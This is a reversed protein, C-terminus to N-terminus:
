GPGGAGSTGTSGTSGTSGTAGTSGTSGSAGSAGSAGAAGGTSGAPGSATPDTNSFTMVQLTALVNSKSSSSTSGTGSSSALALQVNTVSFLRGNIAVRGSRSVAVQHHLRYMFDDVNLFRGTVDVEYLTATLNGYGQTSITRVQSLTVDSAKALQQLQLIMGPTQPGVTVAKALRFARALLAPQHNALAELATLQTQDARIATQVVALQADAHSARTNAPSIVSAYIVGCIAVTGVAGAIVKQKATLKM